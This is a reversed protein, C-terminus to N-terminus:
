RPPRSAPSRRRTSMSTTQKSSGVTRPRSTGRALIVLDDRVVDHIPVDQVAGDRLVTARLMLRAQLAAVAAESRAEQVFGLAASMVVIALIIGANVEDGVVLSVLSAGVLILVLPSSVQSVLIALVTRRGSGGIANPGDQRLRDAAEAATLGSTSPAAPDAVSPAINSPAKM